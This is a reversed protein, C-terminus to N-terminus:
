NGGSRSYFRQLSTSVGMGALSETFRFATAMSRL